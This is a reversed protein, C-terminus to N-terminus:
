LKLDEQFQIMTLLTSNEGQEYNNPDPINVGVSRTPGGTNMNVQKAMESIQQDEFEKLLDEISKNHEGM